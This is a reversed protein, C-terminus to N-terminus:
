EITPLVVTDLEDDDEDLEDEELFFERDIESITNDPV